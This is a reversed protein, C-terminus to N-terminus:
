TANRMEEELVWVFAVGGKPFTWGEYAVEVSPAPESAELHRHRPQRPGSLYDVVNMLRIGCDGYWLEARFDKTPQSLVLHLVHGNRQGLVCYTYSVTVLTDSKM